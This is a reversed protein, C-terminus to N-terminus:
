CKLLSLHALHKQSIRKKELIIKQLPYHDIVTPQTLQCHSQAYYERHADIKVNPYIPNCIQQKTHANDGVCPNFSTLEEDM